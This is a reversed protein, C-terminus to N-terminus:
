ASTPLQTERFVVRVYTRDCVVVVAQYIPQYSKTFPAAFKKDQIQMLAAEAAKNLLAEIKPKLEAEQEATLKPETEEVSAPLDDAGAKGKKGKAAKGKLRPMKEYRLAIVLTETGPMKLVADIRGEGTTKIAELSQGLLGILLYFITEFYAEKSVHKYYAIATLLGKLAIEAEKADINQFATLTDRAKELITLKAFSFSDSPFISALLEMFLALKVENNPTTLLYKLTGGFGEVRDVTLYGTQFM